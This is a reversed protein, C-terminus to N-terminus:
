GNRVRIGALDPRVVALKLLLVEPALQPDHLNECRDIGNRGGLAPRQVDEPNKRPVAKLPTLLRRQGPPGPGVTKAAGVLVAVILSGRESRQGNRLRTAEVVAPLLIRGRLNRRGSSAGPYNSRRAAPTTQRRVLVLPAKPPLPFHVRVM